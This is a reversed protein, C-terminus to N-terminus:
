ELNDIQEFKRVTKSKLYSQLTQESIPYCSRFNLDGGTRIRVGVLMIRNIRKIYQISNDSPHLGIYDPNKIINPIQGIHSLFEQDNDFDAKHKEM